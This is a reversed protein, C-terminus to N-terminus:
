LANTGEAILRDLSAVDDPLSDDRFKVEVQNKKIKGAIEILLKSANLRDSDKAANFMIDSIVGLAANSLAEAMVDFSNSDIFWRVFKPDKWWKEVVTQDTLQVALAATIKGPSPGNALATHFQAKVLRQDPTPTFLDAAEVVSTILKSDNTTIKGAM